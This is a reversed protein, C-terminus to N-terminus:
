IACIDDFHCKVISLDHQLQVTACHEMKNKTLVLAKENKNDGRLITIFQGKKPIVTECEDEYLTLMQSDNDMRMTFRYKDIVDDVIGKLTYYKGDKICRVRLGTKIWKIKNHYKKTVIKKNKNMTDDIKQKKTPPQETFSKIDAIRKLESKTRQKTDKYRRKIQLEAEEKTLTAGFGLNKPRPKIEATKPLKLHNNEGYQNGVPVEKKWGMGKLLAAGFASIPVSAYENINPETPRQACDIELRKKPDVCDEIGPVKNSQMQNFAGKVNNQSALIPKIENNNISENENLIMDLAAKREKIILDNDEQDTELPPPNTSPKKWKNEKILPIVIEKEKQKHDKLIQNANRNSVIQELESENDRHKIISKQRLNLSSNVRKSKSTFSLKVRKPSQETAM